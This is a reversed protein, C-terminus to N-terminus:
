VTEYHQNIINKLTIAAFEPDKSACIASVVALCDAGAKLVEAANTENINGIAILPLDTLTRIKQLGELGWEVVTDTKTDTKFVPSIGIADAYSIESNQLQELYEFSYGIHRCDKWTDKVVSPPLDSNGVHIGFAGSKMAVTLHDNIILPINYKDTIKKLAIARQLFLKQDINKERLQIIDVGGQIAKEAITLWDHHICSDKSIVLYLRFPFPNRM